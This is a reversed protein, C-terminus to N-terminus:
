NTPKYKSIRYGSKKWLPTAGGKGCKLCKIQLLEAPQLNKINCNFCSGLLPIRIYFNLLDKIFEFIEITGTDLFAIVNYAAIENKNESNKACVAAFQHGFKIRVAMIAIERFTRVFNPILGYIDPILNFVNQIHSIEEVAKDYKAATLNQLQDIQYINALAFM